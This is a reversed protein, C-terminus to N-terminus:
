AQLVKKYENIYSKIMKDISFLNRIREKGEAGMSIRLKEDHLLKEIKMALDKEDEVKVLFGTTNNQIIESTGGGETAVVPKSLAMYELIANSIGETFTALVCIDMINILSEVDTRKGLFRFRNRYKAPVLNVSADSDTGNGISLFTIDFGKDILLQAASYFTKYDKFASFSAVMGVIYATNIDSKRRIDEQNSLQNTREFDFGNYICVRKRKPANYADLGAKSNGIILNSFPFVFRARLWNRNRLKSVPADVVMGNVLKISLLKCVPALYVVTMSDWSHVLDPKYNKCIHYFQSLVSFDKKTKRIVFHIKIDLEFLEQYHIDKSMIVLEFNIDNTRRLGKMLEFLRREKGGSPFSDIFFLIKM